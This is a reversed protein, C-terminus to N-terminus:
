LPHKYMTDDCVRSFPTAIENQSIAEDHFEECHCNKNVAGLYKIELLNVGLLIRVKRYIPLTNLNRYGDNLSNTILAILKTMAVALTAYSAAIGETIPM